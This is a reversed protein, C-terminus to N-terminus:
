LKETIKGNRDSKLVIKVSDKTKSNQIEACQQGNSSMLHGHTLPIHGIRPKSKLHNEM